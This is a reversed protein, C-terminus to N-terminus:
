ELVVKEDPFVKQRDVNSYFRPGSLTAKSWLKAGGMLCLILLTFITLERHGQLLAVFLFFVVFLLVLPVIFLSPIREAQKEMTM